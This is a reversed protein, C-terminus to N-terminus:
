AALSQIEHKKQLTVTFYLRGFEKGLKGLSWDAMLATSELWRSFRFYGPDPYYQMHKLELGARRCGRKLQDMSNLKYLTPFTDEPARGYFQQVLFQNLTHPFLGM